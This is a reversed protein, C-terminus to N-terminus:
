HPTCRKEAKGGERRGDDGLVLEFRRDETYEKVNTKDGCRRDKKKNMEDQRMECDERRRAREILRKETQLDSKRGEM